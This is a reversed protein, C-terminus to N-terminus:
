SRDPSRVIGDELDPPLTDWLPRRYRFIRRLRAVDIQPMHREILDYTQEILEGLIREATAVDGAYCARSRRLLEPPAIPLAACVQGLWKFGFFYVRNLGLLTHLLREHRGVIMSYALIPNQRHRLMEFRWVHDCQANANVVAVGLEPPYPTVLRRWQEIWQSGHLPTGFVVGAILGQNFPAPDFQDITKHITQELFCLTYHQMDISIGTKPVDDRRGLKWDDTWVGEAAEFPYLRELDGGAQEILERRQEDTPPEHWLVSLEIDSFRDANGRAASGGLVFAAVGPLAAYLPALRHAIARRAAAASTPINSNEKTM